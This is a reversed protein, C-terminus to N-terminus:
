ETVSFLLSLTTVPEAGYGGGDLRRMPVSFIVNLASECSMWSRTSSRFRRSGGLQSAHLVRLNFHPPLDLTVARSPSAVASIGQSTLGPVRQESSAALQM